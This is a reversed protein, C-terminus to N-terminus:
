NGLEFRIFRRIKINEGTKAITEAVVDKILKTPDKIYPQLLLCAEDSVEKGEPADEKSVCVPAMAAVQMALCHAMEKFQDTRAVFDTECNVEIMAGIRGATHIYTEVLGSATTRAARKEAKALGKAKLAEVAKDVNGECTKLANRCDLIGAGTQERLDKVMQATIEL